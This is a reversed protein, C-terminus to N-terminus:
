NSGFQDCHAQKLKSYEDRETKFAPVEWRPSYETNLVIEVDGFNAIFDAAAKPNSVCRLADTKPMEIKHGKWVNELMETTFELNSVKM